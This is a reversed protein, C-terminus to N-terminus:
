EKAQSSQPVNILLGANEIEETNANLEEVLEGNVWKTIRSKIRTVEAEDGIFEFGVPIGDPDKAQGKGLVVPIRLVQQVDMRWDKGDPSFVFRGEGDYQMFIGQSKSAEYRFTCGARKDTQVKNGTKSATAPIRQRFLDLQGDDYRVPHRRDKGGRCVCWRYCCGARDSGHVSGGGYSNLNMFGVEAYKKAPRSKRPPFYQDTGNKEQPAGPLNTVSFGDMNYRLETPNSRCFIAPGIKLYQLFNHFQSKTRSLQFRAIMQGGFGYSAYLLVLFPVVADAHKFKLHNKGDISQVMALDCLKVDMKEEGPAPMFGWVDFNAIPSKVSLARRFWSQLNQLRRSPGSCCRSYGPYKRGWGLCGALDNGTGLPMQVLAPFYRKIEDDTWIFGNGKDTLGEDARSNDAALVKFVLMLAFSGTGDGGGCILRPRFSDDKGTAAEKAEVLKKRFQDLLGGREKASKVVEVIHFINDKYVDTRACVEMIPGGMQGGSRPNILGVFPAHVAADFPLLKGDEPFYGGPM